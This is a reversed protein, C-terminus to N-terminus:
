NFKGRKAILKQALQRLEIKLVKGSANVPLGSPLGIEESAFFFDDPMKHPALDNKRLWLKLEKENLSSKFSSEEQVFAVVTEGWKAHPVGM